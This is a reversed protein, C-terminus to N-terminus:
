GGGGGVKLGAVEQCISAAVGLMTARPNPGAIALGGTTPVWTIVQQVQEVAVNALQLPHM